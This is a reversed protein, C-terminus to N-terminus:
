RFYLVLFPGYFRATLGFFSDLCFLWAYAFYLAGDKILSEMLSMRRFGAGTDRGSKAYQGGHYYHLYMTRSVTLLFTLSDFAVEM